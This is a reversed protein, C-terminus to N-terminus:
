CARFGFFFFFCIFASYKSHKTIVNRADDNVPILYLLCHAIGPRSSSFLSGSLWHVGLAGLMNFISNHFRFLFVNGVVAARKWQQAIFVCVCHSWIFIIQIRELGVELCIVVSVVTFFVNITDPKKNYSLTFCVFYNRFFIHSIPLSFNAFYQITIAPAKNYHTRRPNFKGCLHIISKFIFRWQIFVSIYDDARGIHAFSNSLRNSNTNM